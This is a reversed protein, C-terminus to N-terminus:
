APRTAQSEDRLLRQQHELWHALGSRTPLRIIMFLLLAGAVALNLPSGEILFAVLNLFAGGELLAMGVIFQTQYIPLLDQPGSRSGELGGGVEHAPRSTALAQRQTNVVLAPVTFFALLCLLAILAVVVVLMSSFDFMDKQVVIAEDGGSRVILAVVLFVTVGAILSGWIIQLTRLPGAIADRTTPDSM